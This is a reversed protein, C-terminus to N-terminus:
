LFVLFISTFSVLEEKEMEKCDTMVKCEVYAVITKILLQRQKEHLIKNDEYYELISKANKTNQLMTLVSRIAQKECVNQPSSILTGCAAQDGVALGYFIKLVKSTIRHEPLFIFM